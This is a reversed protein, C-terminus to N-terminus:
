DADAPGPRLRLLDPLGQDADLLADTAKGSAGEVAVSLCSGGMAKVHPLLLRYLAGEDPQEGSFWCATILM